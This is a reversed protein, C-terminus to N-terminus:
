VPQHTVYGTPKLINFETPSDPIEGKQGFLNLKNESPFKDESFAKKQLVTQIERAEKYLFITFYPCGSCSAHHTENLTFM